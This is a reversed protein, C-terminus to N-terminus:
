AVLFWREFPSNLNDVFEWYVVRTTSSDMGVLMVIKKEDYDSMFPESAVIYLDNLISKWIQNKKVVEM